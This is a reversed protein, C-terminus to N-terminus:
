VTSSHDGDIRPIEKWAFRDELLVICGDVDACRTSERQVMPGRIDEGAMEGNWYARQTAIPGHTSLGNSGDPVTYQFPQLTPQHNPGRMFELREETVEESKEISVYSPVRCHRFVVWIGWRRLYMWIEEDLEIMVVDPHVTSIASIVDRESRPSIHLTSVIYVDKGNVSARGCTYPIRDGSQQYWWSQQSASATTAGFTTVTEPTQEHVQTEDSAQRGLTEKDKASRLHLVRWLVMLALLVSALIWSLMSSNASSIWYIALVSATSLVLDLFIRM